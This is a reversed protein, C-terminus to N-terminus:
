QARKAIGFLPTGNPFRSVPFSHEVVVLGVTALGIWLPQPLRLSFRRTGPIPDTPDLCMLALRWVGARARRSLKGTPPASM